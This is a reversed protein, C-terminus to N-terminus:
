DEKAFELRATKLMRCGSPVKFGKRTKSKSVFKLKRWFNAKSLTANVRKTAVCMRGKCDMFQLKVLGDVRPKLCAEVSHVFSALKGSPLAGTTIYNLAEILT